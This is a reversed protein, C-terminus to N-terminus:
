PRKPLQFLCKGQHVGDFAYDSCKKQLEDLHKWSQRSMPDSEAGEEKDLHNSYRHSLDQKWLQYLRELLFETNGTRQRLDLIHPIWNCVAYDQLAYDGRRMATTLDLEALTSAFCDFSLYTVSLETLKGTASTTDLFASHNEDLYRVDNASNLSVRKRQVSKKATSHVLDVTGDAAVDIIPGCLDKLHHLYRRSELDISKDSLRISLIAQVEYVKLPRRASVLTEL